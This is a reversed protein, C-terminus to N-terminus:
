KFAKTPYSGKGQKTGHGIILLPHYLVTTLKQIRSEIYQFIIECTNLTSVDILDEILQFPLTQDALDKTLSHHSNRMDVLYLSIDLLAFIMTLSHSKAVSSFLISKMLLTSQDFSPKINLHIKPSLSLYSIYDNTAIRKIEAEIEAKM